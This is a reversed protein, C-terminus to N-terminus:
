KKMKKAIEIFDDYFNVKEIVGNLIIMSFVIVVVIISIVVPLRANRSISNDIFIEYIQILAIYIPILIAKVSDLYTKEINRKRILWHIMDSYNLIHKNLINQVHKEWDSYTNCFKYDTQERNKWRRMFRLFNQIWGKNANKADGYDKGVNKYTKFEYDINLKYPEYDIKKM